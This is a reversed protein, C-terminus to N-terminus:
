WLVGRCVCVCVHVLEIRVNSTDGSKSM